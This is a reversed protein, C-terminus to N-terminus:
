AAKKKAKTAKPAGKFLKHVTGWRRLTTATVGVTEAIETFSKGKAHLKTVKEGLKENFKNM